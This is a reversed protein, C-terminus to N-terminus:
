INQEKFIYISLFISIIACFIISIRGTTLYLGQVKMMSLINAASWPLIFPFIGEMNSGSVGIVTFFLCLILSPYFLKRQLIAIAMLPILTIFILLGSKLFLTSTHLAQLINMGNYFLIFGGFCTVLLIIITLVMHWVAWVILKSCIFKTRSVPATLNNILTREGYERQVLVTIIFGSLVPLILFLIITQMSMVWYELGLKRIGANLFLDKLTILMPLMFAIICTIPILKNHKLKIFEAEIINHLKM